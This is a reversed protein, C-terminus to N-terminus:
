MPVFEAPAPSTPRSVDVTIRRDYLAKFAACAEASVKTDDLKLFYLKPPKGLFEIGQDTIGVNRLKLELLSSHDAFTLLAQDTIPVNWLRINCLRRLASLHAIGRDTVPVNHLFLLKLNQCTALHEMAKDTIAVGYIQVEQLTSAPLSAIGGDTVPADDITISRLASGCLHSLGQDTLPSRRSTFQELSRFLPMKAFGSGTVKTEYLQLWQLSPLDHLLHLDTDDFQPGLLDVHVVSDVFDIGVYKAIAPFPLPQSTSSGQSLYFVKGGQALILAVARRQRLARNAYWGFGVALLSVAVLASRLSLRLWRRYGRPLARHVAARSNM